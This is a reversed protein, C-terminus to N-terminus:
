SAMKATFERIEKQGDGTIAHEHHVVLYAKNHDVLQEMEVGIIHLNTAVPGKENTEITFSVM